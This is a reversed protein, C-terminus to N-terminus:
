VNAVKRMNGETLTNEITVQGLDEYILQNITDDWKEPYEELKDVIPLTQGTM